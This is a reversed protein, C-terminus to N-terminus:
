KIEEMELKNPPIFAVALITYFLYGGVDSELINGYFTWYVSFISCLLGIVGISRKQKLLRISYFIGLIFPTYFLILGVVGLDYFLKAYTFYELNYTGFNNKTFLTGAAGFGYGFFLKIVDHEFCEEWVRVFGDTRGIGDRNYGYGSEIYSTIGEINRIDFNFTDLYYTAVWSIAFFAAIVLIVTRIQLKKNILMMVIVIVAAEFIFSKIEISVALIGIMTLKLVSFKINEKKNFYKFLTIILVVIILVHSAGNGYGYQIGFIGGVADRSTVNQIYLQFFSLIFHIVFVYDFIKFLKKLDNQSWCYMTALLVIYFRGTLRLQYIFDSLSNNIGICFSIIWYFLECLLIKELKTRIICHTKYLLARLILITIIDEIYVVSNIGTSVSVFRCIFLM